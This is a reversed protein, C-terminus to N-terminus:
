TGSHKSILQQLQAALQSDGIMDGLTISGSKEQDSMYSKVSAHEEERILDRVSLLIRNGKRELKTVKARVHQGVTVGEESKQIRQTSLDSLPIFGEIQEDLQMYAGEPVIRTITGEFVKNKQFRRTLENWPDTLTQKLGLSMKKAEPDIRLVVVEIEQGQQLVAAPDIESDEWSLDSKHIMGEIGSTLKVFVGFNTLGTVTGKVRSGPPCEDYIQSWPDPTAQKISLSVKRRASDVNVVKVLVKQGPELVHSPHKVHDTWSLESIHVLGDVGPLIEVFAGFNTFSKVTGEISTGVKVTDIVKDWPDGQAQKLGLRIKVPEVNPDFELIKVKVSDGKQVITSPDKVFGSWSLDGLTILGDIGGIDVFVGFNTINKVAGEVITGVTIKTLTEKRVSDREGELLTKRSLVINKRRRDMEKIEFMLAQGEVDTLAARRKLTAQSRPLFCTYPLGIDVKFGGKIEGVVKGEVLTGAKFADQIKIWREDQAARARSLRTTGDETELQLVKVYVKDGVKVTEGLSTFEAKKIRGECKLGVDVIVDEDTVQIVEGSVVEGAEVASMSEGSELLSKQFDM